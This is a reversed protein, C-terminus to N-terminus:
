RSGGLLRACEALEPYTRSIENGNRSFAQVTDDVYALARV